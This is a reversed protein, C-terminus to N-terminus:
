GEVTCSARLLAILREVDSALGELLLARREGRAVADIADKAEKLGIGTAERVAKIADIRRAPDVTTLWVQQKVFGLQPPRPMGAVPVRVVDGPHPTVDAHAGMARFRAAIEHAHDHALDPLVRKPALEVLDKADKLGLGTVERVLKIAAIKNPGGDFLIVDYHRTVSAIWTPDITDRLARLKPPGEHLLAEIRLYEGRPDGREDLWDAYVSRAEADNPNAAIAALFTAELDDAM